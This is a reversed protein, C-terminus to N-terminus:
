TVIISCYSSAENIVIYNSVWADTSWSIWFLKGDLFNPFMCTSNKNICLYQNRLLVMECKEKVLQQALQIQGQTGIVVFYRIRSFIQQTFIEGHM